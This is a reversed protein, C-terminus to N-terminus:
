GDKSAAFFLNKTKDHHLLRVKDNFLVPLQFVCESKNQTERMKLLGHKTGECYCNLRTIWCFRSINEQNKEGKIEKYNQFMDGIFASGEMPPKFLQVLYLLGSSMRCFIINREQDLHIQKAFHGGLSPQKV